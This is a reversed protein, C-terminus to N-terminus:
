SLILKQRLENIGYGKWEKLWKDLEEAFPESESIPHLWRRWVKNGRINTLTKESGAQASQRRRVRRRRGLGMPRIKDEQEPRFQYRGDGMSRFALRRWLEWAITAPSTLRGQDDYHIAKFLQEATVYLPQNGHVKMWECCKNYMLGFISNGAEEAQEFLAPLDEWRAAAVFVEDTIEYRRPEDVEEYELEGDDTLFVRRV